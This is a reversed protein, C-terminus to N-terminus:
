NAPTEKKPLMGRFTEELNIWDFEHSIFSKASETVKDLYYGFKVIGNAGYPANSLGGSVVQKISYAGIVVQTVNYKQEGWLLKLANWEDEKGRLGNVVRSTGAAMSNVGDVYVYGGAIAYSACPVAALGRSIMAGTVGIRVMGAGLERQFFGGAAQVGGLFVEKWQINNWWTAIAGKTAKWIEGFDIAKCDAAEPQGLKQEALPFEMEDTCEIITKMDSFHVENELSIGGMPTAMCIQNPSNMIVKQKSDIVIEDKAELVMGKHSSIKVGKEDDFTLILDNRGATFYIGGPALKMEQGYETGLYRTSPDSTKKCDGGNTRASGTIIANQEKLGPIYLSATTGLQPMLYMMDTTPPVFPYWYATDQEQEQDIALHLKIEQNQLELVTGELSIGQIKENRIPNQRLTMYRVLKSRYVLIGDKLEIIVAGVYLENGHFTVQDGITLEDYTEVEYYAYENCILGPKYESEVDTYFAAIDKGSSYSIDNPLTKAGGSPYGFSFVVEDLIVNPVLVDEQLSALRKIFQWDTEKYQILPGDITVTEATLEFSKEPYDDMIKAVIDSYALSTDQFSRSKEERDLVSSESLFDATLIYLGGSISVKVDKLRGKFLWSKNGDDETYVEIKDDVIEQLGIKSADSENVLASVRLEAHQNFTKRIFLEYITQIKWPSCIRIKDYTIASM